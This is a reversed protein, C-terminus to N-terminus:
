FVFFNSTQGFSAFFCFFFFHTHTAFQSVFRCVRLLGGKETRLEKERLEAKRVSCGLSGTSFCVCALLTLDRSHLPIKFCKEKDKKTCIDVAKPGFSAPNLQRMVYLNLRLIYM